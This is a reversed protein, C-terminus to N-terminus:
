RLMIKEQVSSFLIGLSVINPHSLMAATRAEELGILAAENLKKTTAKSADKGSTTLLPLVKIAVRRAIREDFARYVSGFGGTGLKELVRYRNLILDNENMVILILYLTWGRIEGCRVRAQLTVM